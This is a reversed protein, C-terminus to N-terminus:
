SNSAVATTREVPREDDEGTTDALSPPALSVHWTALHERVSAMFQNTEPAAYTSNLWHTWYQMREHASLKLWNAALELTMGELSEFFEENPKAGTRLLEALGAPEGVAWPSQIVIRCATLFPLNNSAAAQGFVDAKTVASIQDKHRIVLGMKTPLDPEAAIFAEAQNHRAEKLVALAVKHASLLKNMDLDLGSLRHYTLCDRVVQWVTDGLDLTPEARCLAMAALVFKKLLKARRGQSAFPSDGAFQTVMTRAYLTAPKGEERDVEDFHEDMAKITRAFVGAFDGYPEDDIIADIEASTMDQLSPTEVILAWRDATPSDVENATGALMDKSLNATGIIAKTAMPVVNGCIVLKGQLMLRYQSMVHARTNLFEDLVLIEAKLLDGLILKNKGLTTNAHIDVVGALEAIDDLTSSDVLAVSFGALEALKVSGETKATGPLGSFFFNFPTLGSPRRKLIAFFAAASIRIRQWGIIHQM